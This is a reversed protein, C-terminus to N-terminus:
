DFFQRLSRLMDYDIANLREPRNMTVIGIPGRREFLLNDM